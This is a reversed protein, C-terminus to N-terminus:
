RNVASALSGAAAPQSVLTKAEQLQQVRPRNARRGLLEQVPLSQQSVYTKAYLARYVNPYAVSSTSFPILPECQTREAMKIVLRRTTEEM